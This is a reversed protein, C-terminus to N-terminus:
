YPLSLSLALPLFYFVSVPPGLMDAKNWKKTDKFWVCFLSPDKERLRVSSPVKEDM